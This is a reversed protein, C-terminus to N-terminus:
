PLLRLMRRWPRTKRRVANLRRWPSSALPLSSPRSPVLLVSSIVSIYGLLILREEATQSIAFDSRPIVALAGPQAANPNPVTGGPRRLTNCMAKIFKDTLFVFDKASTISETIADCHSAYVIGIPQNANRVQALAAAMNFKKRKRRHVPIFKSFFKSILM